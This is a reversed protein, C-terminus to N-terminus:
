TPEDPITLGVVLGVAGVNVHALGALVPRFPDTFAEFFGGISFLSVGADGANWVLHYLAGALGVGVTVVMVITFIWKVVRHTTFFMLLSIPLGVIAIYFPIRSGFSPLYHDIVWHEVFFYFFGFATWFLFFLQLFTLLREDETSAKMWRDIM